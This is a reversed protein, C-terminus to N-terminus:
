ESDEYTLAAVFDGCSVSHKGYVVPFVESIAKCGENRTSFLLSLLNHESAFAYCVAFEPSVAASFSYEEDNDSTALNYVYIM